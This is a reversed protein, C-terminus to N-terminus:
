KEGMVIRYHRISAKHPAKMYMEGGWSCQFINKYKDELYYGDESNGNRFHSGWLLLVMKSSFLFCKICIMQNM